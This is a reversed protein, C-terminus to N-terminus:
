KILRHPFARQFKKLARRSHYRPLMERVFPMEQRGISLYIELKHTSIKMTNRNHLVDTGPQAIEITM